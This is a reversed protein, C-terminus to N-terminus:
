PSRLYVRVNTGAESELLDIVGKRQSIWDRVGRRREASPHGSRVQLTRSSKEGGTSGPGSSPPRKGHRRQLYLHYVFYRVKSSQAHQASLAIIYFKRPAVPGNAAQCYEIPVQIKGDPRIWWLRRSKQDVRPKKGLKMTVLHALFM